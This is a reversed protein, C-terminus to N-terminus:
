FTEGEGFAIPDIARWAGQNHGSTDGTVADGRFYYLPWGRYTLQVIGDGRVFAGLEVPDLSSPLRTTRLSASASFPPRNALCAGSCASTPAVSGATPADDLCVYLTRGFGDTLYLRGLESTGAPEFSATTSLFAFYDRAVFWRGDLGDASVDGPQAGARSYLPHGKYRLQWAGDQRHMRTVERADIEPAFMPLPDSVLAVDFPLFSQACAGVCAAEDRDPVDDAFMYLARGAGDTLYDALQGSHGIRLALEVVGADAQSDVVEEVAVVAVVAESPLVPTPAPLLVAADSAPASFVLPQEVVYGTCGLLLVCASVRYKSLM